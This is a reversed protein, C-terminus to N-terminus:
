AIGAVDEAKRGVRRLRDPAVDRDDLLLQREVDELEEAQRRQGARLIMLHEPLLADRHVGVEVFVVDLVDAGRM